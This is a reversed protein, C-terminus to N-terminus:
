RLVFLSVNAQTQVELTVRGGAEATVGCLGKIQQKNIPAAQGKPLSFLLTRDAASPVWQISDQKLQRM